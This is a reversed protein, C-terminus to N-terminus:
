YVDIQINWPPTSSTVTITASTGGVCSSSRSTTSGNCGGGLKGSDGCGCTFTDWDVVVYTWNFDNPYYGSWGGTSCPLGCVSTHGSPFTSWGVPTGGGGGLYDSEVDYPDAFSWTTSAPVEFINSIIGTSCSTTGLVTPSQAYLTVVYSCTSSHNIVTVAGTGSQAQLLPNSAFSLIFCFLLKKM